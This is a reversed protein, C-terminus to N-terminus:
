GDKKKEDVDGSNDSNEVDDVAAGVCLSRYVMTVIRTMMLQLGLMFVVIIVVIRMM